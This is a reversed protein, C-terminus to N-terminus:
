EHLKQVGAKQRSFQSFFLALSKKSPTTKFTVNLNPESIPTRNMFMFHFTEADYYLGLMRVLVASIGGEQLVFSTVSQWNRCHSYTVMWSASNFALFFTAFGELFATFNHHL